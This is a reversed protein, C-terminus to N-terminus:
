TVVDLSGLFTKLTPSTIWPNVEPALPMTTLMVTFVILTWSILELVLETDTVAPVGAPEPKRDCAPAASILDTDDGCCCCIVPSWDFSIMTPGPPETVAVAAAGE